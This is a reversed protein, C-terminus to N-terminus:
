RSPPKSVPDTRREVTELFENAWRHVNHEEIQERLGKMRRRREEPEMTCAVYIAEAMQDVDHPNVILANDCLEEAAGAFKSLVLVGDHNVKTACYEKAVLNMGDRIPTVLAVDALRYLALIKEFGMHGCTYRVPVWDVSGLAGNTRGVEREVLERLDEYQNIQERSPHTHQILTVNGELEPYFELARQFAKLREPIGKTYDLREVGLLYTHDDLLLRQHIREHEREVPSSTAQAQISAFDISIPFVKATSEGKEHEITLQDEDREIKVDPLLSPLATQLNALDRRTQVGIVDFAILSRLLVTHWPLRQLINESPFPTHLFFGLPRTEGLDRLKEGVLMLQYDHIWVREDADITEKTTRAFRENVIQYTEWFRPEFECFPHLDHFLPWLIENSFGLYYEKRERETLSVPVLDYGVDKPTDADDLNIPGTIGPWGIWAGGRQTMLKDLASALGGPSPHM